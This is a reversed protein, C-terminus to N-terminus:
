TRRGVTCSFNRASPSMRRNTWSFLFYPSSKMEVVVQNWIDESMDSFRGKVTCNSLSIQNMKKEHKEELVLRLMEILRLKIIDEGVTRPKTCEAIRCSAEPVVEGAQAFQGTLALRSSKLM